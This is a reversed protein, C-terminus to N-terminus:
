MRQFDKRAVAFAFCRAPNMNAGPFGEAIGITSFATLGLVCGVLLPGMKPGFM